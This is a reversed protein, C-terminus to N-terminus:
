VLVCCSGPLLWGAKLMPHLGQISHLSISLSRQTEQLVQLLQKPICGRKVGCRM